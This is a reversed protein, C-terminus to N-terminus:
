CLKDQNGIQSLNKLGTSFILVHGARENTINSTM